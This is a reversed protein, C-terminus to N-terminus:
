AHCGRFTMVPQTPSGNSSSTRMLGQLQRRPQLRQARTDLLFFKDVLGRRTSRDDTSEAAWAAFRQNKEVWRPSASMDVEEEDLLTDITGMQATMFELQDPDESKSLLSLGYDDPRGSFLVRQDRTVVPEIWIKDPQMAALVERTRVDLPDRMLWGASLSALTLGHKYRRDSDSWKGTESMHAASLPLIIRRRMALDIITRAADLEDPGLKDPAYIANGLASWHNQDLYIAPRGNREALRSMDPLPIAITDGHTTLIALQQKDILAAIAHIRSGPDHPAPEIPYDAIKGDSRTLLATSEGNVITVQTIRLPNDPPEHPM